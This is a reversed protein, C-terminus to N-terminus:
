KKDERNKFMLKLRAPIVVFDNCDSCCRCDNIPAANYGSDWFVKGTKPNIQKDIEKKCISCKM